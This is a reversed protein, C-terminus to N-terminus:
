KIAGSTGPGNFDFEAEFFVGPSKEVIWITLNENIETSQYPNELYTICLIHIVRSIISKPLLGEPGVYIGFYDIYHQLGRFFLILHKWILDIRRTPPWNMAFYQKKKPSWLKQLPPLNTLYILRCTACLSNWTRYWQQSWSGWTYEIMIMIILM